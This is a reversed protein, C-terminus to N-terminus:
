PQFVVIRNNAGDAVFVRGTRDVAVGSPGSLAGIGADAAALLVKFNGKADFEQVDNNAVDTVWVNGSSDVSLGYPENFGDPTATPSNSGYQALLTGTPSYHVFSHYYYDAVWLDGAGDFALGVSGALSSSEGSQSTPFQSAVTGGDNFLLVASNDDDIAYLQNTASIAVGTVRGLTVGADPNPFTAVYAGAHTLEVVDRSGYDGVYVNGNSDLAVGAGSAITGPGSTGFTAIYGGDAAFEVVGGSFSAVWLTGSNPDIAIAQPAPINQTAFATPPLTYGADSVGTDAAADGAPGDTAFGADYPSSSDTSGDAPNGGGDNSGPSQSSSLCGALSTVYALLLLFRMRPNHCAVSTSALRLM